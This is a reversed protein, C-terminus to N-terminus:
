SVVREHSRRLRLTKQIGRPIVRKLWLPSPVREYSLELCFDKRGGKRLDEVRFGYRGLRLRAGSRLEKEQAGDGYIKYVVKPSTVKRALEPNHLLHAKARLFEMGRIRGRLEIPTTLIKEVAAPDLDRAVYDLNLALIQDEKSSSKALEDLRFRLEDLPLGILDSAPPAQAEGHLERWIESPLPFWRLHELEAALGEAPPPAPADSTIAAVIREAAAVYSALDSEPATAHESRYAMAGDDYSVQDLGMPAEPRIGQHRWIATEPDFRYRPLLRWGHDAVWHVAQLLFDFVPQAITELGIRKGDDTM